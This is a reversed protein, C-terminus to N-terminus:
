GLDHWHGGKRHVAVRGFGEHAGEAVQL